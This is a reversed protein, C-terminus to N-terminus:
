LRVSVDHVEIGVHRMDLLMRSMNTRGQVSKAQVVSFLPPLGRLVGTCVCARRGPVWFGSGPRSPRSIRSFLQPASASVPSFVTLNSLGVLVPNM